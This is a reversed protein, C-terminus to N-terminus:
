SLCVVKGGFHVVRILRSYRARGDLGFISIDPDCLHPLEIPYEFDCHGARSNDTFNSYQFFTYNYSGSSSKKAGAGLAPSPHGNINIPSSTASTQPSSRSSDHGSSSKTIVFLKQNIFDWQAWDFDKCLYSVELIQLITQGWCLGDIM